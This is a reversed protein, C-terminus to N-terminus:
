KKNESSLILTLIINYTLMSREKKSGDQIITDLLSIAFLFIKIMGETIDLGLTILLSESSMLIPGGLSLDLLDLMLEELFNEASEM